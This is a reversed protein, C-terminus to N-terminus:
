LNFSKSFLDKLNRGGSDGQCSDIKGEAYGACLMVDTIRNNYFDPQNCISNSMGPVEVSHLVKPRSGKYSLTGWGSVTLKKGNLYDGSFDTLPLYAPVARPGIQVPKDLYIISFDYNVTNRSYLPHDVYRSYSHRTGDKSSTYDHEGVIIEGKRGERELLRTCHAATLVHRDTILTGGCFPSDYGRRVFAVQWPISHRTVEGGGVIRTSTSSIEGASLFVIM